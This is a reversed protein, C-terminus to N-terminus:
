IAARELNAQAGEAGIVHCIFFFPLDGDLKHQLHSKERSIRVIVSTSFLSGRLSAPIIQHQSQTLSGFDALSFKLSDWCFLDENSGSFHDQQYAVIVHGQM